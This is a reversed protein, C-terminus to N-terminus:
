RNPNSTGYVSPMPLSSRLGCPELPDGSREFHRQRRMRKSWVRQNQCRVPPKGAKLLQLFRALPFGGDSLCISSGIHGIKIGSLNIALLKEPLREEHDAIAEKAERM